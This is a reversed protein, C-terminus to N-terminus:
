AREWAARGERGAKRMAQQGRVRAVIFWELERAIGQLMEPQREVRTMLLAGELTAVVFRAVRAAEVEEGLEPSAEELLREIEGAWREFVSQVRCRFGEHADAMELALAGCPSAEACGCEAQTRVVARVFRILRELPPADLERLVSLGSEAFREFHRELVAHGLEEKSRFHHYFHAKGCLGTERIVEDVSTQQYGRRSMLGAAADM